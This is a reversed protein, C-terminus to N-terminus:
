QVEIMQGDAAGDGGGSGGPPDEFDDDDRDEEDYYVVEDDTDDEEEQKKKGKQELELGQLKRTIKDMSTKTANNMKSNSDATGHGKRLKVGSAALDKVAGRVAKKERRDSTYTSYSQVLEDEKRQDNRKKAAKAAKIKVQKKNNVREKSPDKKPPM